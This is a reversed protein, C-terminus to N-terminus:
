VSIKSRERPLKVSYYYADARYHSRYLIAFRNEHSMMLRTLLLLASGQEVKLLGARRRDATTAEVRQQDEWISLSLTEQVEKILGRDLVNNPAILHGTEARLYAETYALTQGEVILLYIIRHLPAGDDVRTLEAVVGRAPIEGRSLFRARIDLGLERFGESLGTLRAEVVRAHHDCVFTGQGARRTIWGDQELGLLAERITERSM